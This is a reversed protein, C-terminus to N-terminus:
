GDTHPRKEVWKKIGENALTNEVVKKLYPYGEILNGKVMFNMYDLVATFWLDAWTTQGGLALHGNNEKALRELQGLYIPAINADYNERKEAKM